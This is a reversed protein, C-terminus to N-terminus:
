KKNHIPGLIYHIKNDKVNINISLGNNFLIPHKGGTIIYQIEQNPTLDYTGKPDDTKKELMIKDLDYYCFGNVCIPKITNDSELDVHKTNKNPYHAPKHEYVEKKGHETKYHEIQINCYIVIASLIVVLM